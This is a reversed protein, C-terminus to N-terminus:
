PGSPRDRVMDDILAALEAPRSLHPSHSTAIRRVDETRAALREQVPVALSADQETVVYSSPVTHWGARTVWDAFSRHHQDVLRGLALDAVAEPVDAYLQARPDDSIPFMGEVADPEPAGVMTYMSEGVDPVFAAVYILRRVRPLGAVAETAPIGGYSHAIVVVPGDVGECAARIVEADDPVGGHADPGSTPLKVALSPYGLTDLEGRLLDWTSPLHWAGHVLVLTPRQDTM